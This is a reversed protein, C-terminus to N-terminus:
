NIRLPTSFFKILLLCSWSQKNSNQGCLFLEINGCDRLKGQPAFYQYTGIWTRQKSRQCPSECKTCQPSFHHHSFRIPTVHNIYNFPAVWAQLGDGGFEYTSSVYKYRKRSWDSRSLTESLVHLDFKSSSVDHINSWLESPIVLRNYPM